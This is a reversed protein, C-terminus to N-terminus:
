WRPGVEQELFWHLCRDVERRGLRFEVMLSLIPDDEEGSHLWRRYSTGIEV